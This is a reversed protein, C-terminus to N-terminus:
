FYFISHLICHLNVNWLGMLACFLACNHCIDDSMQLSLYIFCVLISVTLNYALSCLISYDYLSECKMKEQIIGHRGLIPPFVAIRWRWTSHAVLLPRLSPAVVCTCQASLHCYDVYKEHYHESM